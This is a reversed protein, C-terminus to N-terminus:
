KGMSALGLSTSSLYNDMYQYPIYPNKLLPRTKAHREEISKAQLTFKIGKVNIMNPKKNIYIYIYIYITTSPRHLYTTLHEM